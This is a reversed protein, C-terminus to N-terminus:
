HIPELLHLNTSRDSGNKEKTLADANGVNVDVSPNHCLYLLSPWDGELSKETVAKKSKGTAEQHIGVPEHGMNGVVPTEVYEVEEEDLNVHVGTSWPELPSTGAMSTQLLVPTRSMFMAGQMFSTVGSLDTFESHAQCM